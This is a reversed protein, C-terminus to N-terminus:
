SKLSAFVDLIYNSSPLNSAFVFTVGDTTPQGQMQIPIIPDSSDTSRLNAVVTPATEPNFDEWLIEVSNIGASLSKHIAHLDDSSKIKALDEASLSSSVGSTRDWSVSSDEGAVQLPLAGYMNYSHVLKRLQEEADKSSEKLLKASTNKNAASPISRKIYSDGERLETWEVGGGTSSSPKATADRLVKRAEKALHDKLYLQTFIAEEEYHFQPNLKDKEKDLCFNTNILINLEGLNAELYGSILIANLERETASTHTGFEVDWIKYALEGLQNM